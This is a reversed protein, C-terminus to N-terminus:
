AHDRRRAWTSRRLPMTREGVECGLRRVSRRVLMIVDFRQRVQGVDTGVQHAGLTGIRALDSVRAVLATVDAGTRIALQVTFQGVGGAAGTVLVCDGIGVGGLRLTCLATLGATPM